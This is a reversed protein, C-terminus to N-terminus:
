EEPLPSYLDVLFDIRDEARMKEEKKHTVYLIPDGTMGKLSLWNGDQFTFMELGGLKKVSLKGHKSIISLFHPTIPHSLTYESVMAGDTCRSTKKRKLVQM